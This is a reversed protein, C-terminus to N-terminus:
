AQSTSTINATQQNTANNINAFSNSIVWSDTKLLVARNRLCLPSAIVSVRRVDQPHKLRANRVAARQVPAKRLKACSHCASFSLKGPLDQSCAKFHPPTRRMGDSQLAAVAAAELGRTPGGQTVHQKM